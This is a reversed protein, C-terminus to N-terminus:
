EAAASRRPGSVGATADQAAERLAQHLTTLFTTADPPVSWLVAIAVQDYRGAGVAARLEETTRVMVAPVAPLTTILNQFGDIYRADEATPASIENDIVEAASDWNMLATHEADEFRRKLDAVIDVM